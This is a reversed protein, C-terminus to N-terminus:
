PSPVPTFGAAPANSAGGLTNLELATVRSELNTLRNATEPTDGAYTTGGLSLCGPAVSFAFVVMSFKLITSSRM